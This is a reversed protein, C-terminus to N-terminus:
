ILVVHETELVDLGRSSEIRSSGMSIEQRARPMLYRGKDGRVELAAGHYPLPKLCEDSAFRPRLQEIAALSLGMGM